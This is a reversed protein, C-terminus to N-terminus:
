APMSVPREVRNGGEIEQDGRLRLAVDRTIGIWGDQPGDDSQPRTVVQHTIDLRIYQRRHRRTRSGRVYPRRTDPVRGRSAAPLPTRAGRKEYAAGASAAIPDSRQVCEVSPAEAPVVRPSPSAIAILTVFPDPLTNRSRPKEGTSASCRRTRASSM